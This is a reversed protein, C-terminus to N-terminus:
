CADCLKNKEFHFYPIGDLLDKHVLKDLHDMHIHYIRRHQLCSEDENSLLCVCGSSAIKNLNMTYIDGSRSSTFLTEM